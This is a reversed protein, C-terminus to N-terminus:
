GDVTEAARALRHPTRDPAPLAELEARFTAILRGLEAGGTRGPWLTRLREAAVRRRLHPDRQRALRQETWAIGHREHCASEACGTVVVGDALGRSLVYDIFAPPLQGACALEVTAVRTPEQGDLPVGHACGFVMIRAPGSLRAAAARTRERLAAITLDPLDIGPVLASARRFPMSTPCAGACIGCAVCLSADVRAEQEFPRGDSRRVMTIASYPCDQACRTCGNCNELDVRAPRPKRLPPLWPVALLMLLIVGAAGWSVPGPLTELLPYAPLYFWDLGLSGPVKALDAPGQSTAPHVISLALLALMTGVALGRPPNIKPKTIRQLHIWLIALAILPVAIHIFVMLTFFRSDLTAPSLFNRAIAEGFIPLRDLWETSVIAVYQALKDWVLWYGTIGAVFIMVLVPVGTVWSFWRVGRYRDLGLERSLHLLMVVVLADSAYRHLSRMIGGAYWQDWTISEVSAFTTEVGTDFFIYVYIGSVAVIWYFFFGLAGLNRLPNWAPPFALGLAREARDFAARVLGRIRRM